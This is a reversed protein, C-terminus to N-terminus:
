KGLMSVNGFAQFHLTMLRGIKSRRTTGLENLCKDITQRFDSLCQQQRSNLM